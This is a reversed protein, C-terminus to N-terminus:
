QSVTRIGNKVIETRVNCVSVIENEVKVRDEFTSLTVFPDAVIIDYRGYESHPQGSDLLMAWPKLSIRDFLQATNMHYKLTHKLLPM